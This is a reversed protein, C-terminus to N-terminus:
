KKEAPKPASPSSFSVGNAADDMEKVAKEISAKEKATDKV